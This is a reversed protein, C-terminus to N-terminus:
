ITQLFELTRQESWYARGQNFQIFGIHGGQQPIELHFTDSNQAQEIPYCSPTLFPDDRANILLTPIAIDQLKNLCSCRRWYENASNFGHIPATYTDDFERFTRIQDLGEDSIMGPFRCMKERIKARLSKLFRRMYLRNSLHELRKASSALDCPVSLAIAARIRPDIRGAYDGILKLTLNGGLSFGVLAIQEFASAQATHEIVTQLDDIAGSHYSRLRHNPEASCNRFNWTLVTWGSNALVGAMGQVYAAQANGELGHSLIALRNSHPAKTWVLDLFDGDPTSIREHETTTQPVKRFLAPYITQLHGSNFGFPAQYSSQAILPM